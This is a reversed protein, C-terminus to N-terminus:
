KYPCFAHLYRNNAFNGNYQQRPSNMAGSTNSNLLLNQLISSGQQPPPQSNMQMQMMSGQPGNATNPNQHYNHMPQHPMQNGGMGMQM